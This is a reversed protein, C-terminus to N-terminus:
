TKRGREMKEDCLWMGEGRRGEEKSIFLSDLLHSLDAEKRSGSEKEKDETQKWKERRGETM